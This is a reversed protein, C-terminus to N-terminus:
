YLYQIKFTNTIKLSKYLLLGSPIPNIHIIVMYIHINKMGPIREHNDVNALLFLNGLIDRTLTYM